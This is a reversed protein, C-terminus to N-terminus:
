FEIVTINFTGTNGSTFPQSTNLTSMNMEITDPDYVRSFDIRTGLRLPYLPTIIVTSATSFNAGPITFTYRDVSNNNLNTPLGDLDRTFTKIRITSTTVVNVANLTVNGNSNVSLYKDTVAAPATLSNVGLFLNSAPGSAGSVTVGNAFTKAGSFTQIGTSVVGRVASSADPMNFTVTNAITNTQINFDNFTGVAAGTQFTVTPGIVSQGSASIATIAQRLYSVWSNNSRIFLKGSPPHYIILGDPPNLARIGAVSTDNVRPLWLGQLGNSGQVDLAVAKNLVTPQDGVKLQASSHFFFLLFFLFLSINISKM